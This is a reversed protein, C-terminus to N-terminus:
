PVALSVAIVFHDFDLDDLVQNSLPDSPLLEQDVFLCDDPQRM